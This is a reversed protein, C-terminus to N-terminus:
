LLGGAGRQQGCGSRERAQGTLPRKPGPFAPPGDPGHPLETSAEEEREQLTLPERGGGRGGAPAAERPGEKVSESVNGM